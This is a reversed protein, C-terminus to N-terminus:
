VVGAFPHRTDHKCSAQSRIIRQRDTSGASRGLAPSSSCSKLRRFRRLLMSTCAAASHPVGATASRPAPVSRRQAERTPIAHASKCDTAAMALPHHAVACGLLGRALELLHQELLVGAYRHRRSYKQAAHVACWAWCGAGEGAPSAHCCVRVCRVGRRCSVKITGGDRGQVKSGQYLAGCGVGGAGVEGVGGGGGAVGRALGPARRCRVESGQRLHFRLSGGSRAM